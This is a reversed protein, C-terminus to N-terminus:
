AAGAAQQQALSKAIRRIGRRAQRWVGASASAKALALISLAVSSKPSASALM